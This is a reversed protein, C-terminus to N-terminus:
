QKYNEIYVRRILMDPNVLYKNSEIKDEDFNGAGYKESLSYKVWENNKGALDVEYPGVAIFNNFRRKCARALACDKVSSYDANIFDKALIDIEAEGSKLTRLTKKAMESASIKPVFSASGVNLSIALLLLILTYKM